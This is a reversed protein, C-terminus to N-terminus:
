NPFKLKSSTQAKHISRLLLIWNTIAFTLSFYCFILFFRFSIINIQATNLIIILSPVVVTFLLAYAMISFFYLVQYKRLLLQVFYSPLFVLIFYILTIYLVVMFMEYFVKFIEISFYHDPAFFAVFIFYIPVGAYFPTQVLCHWIQAKSVILKQTFPQALKQLIPKM